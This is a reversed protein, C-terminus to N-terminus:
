RAALAKRIAASTQPAPRPKNVSLSTLTSPATHYSSASAQSAFNSKANLSLESERAALSMAPLRLTMGAQAAIQQSCAECGIPGRQARNARVMTQIASEPAYKM